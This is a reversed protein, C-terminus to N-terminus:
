GIATRRATLTEYAEAMRLYALRGTDDTLMAAVRRCEEAKDWLRNAHQEGMAHVWMRGM